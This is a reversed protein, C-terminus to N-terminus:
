GEDYKNHLEQSYGRETEGSSVNDHIMNGAVENIIDSTANTAYRTLPSATGSTSIKEFASAILPASNAGVRGLLYNTGYSLGSFLIGSAFAEQKALMIGEEYSAGSKYGDEIRYGYSDAAVYALQAPFSAGGTILYFAAASGIFDCVYEGMGDKEMYSKVYIYEGFGSDYINEFFDSVYDKEIIEKVRNEAEPNGNTFLPAFLSITTDVLHEGSTLFGEGVKLGGHTVTAFFRLIINDSYSTKNWNEIEDKTTRIKTIIDNVMDISDDFVECTIKELDTNYYKNINRICQLVDHYTNVINKKSDNLRDLTEAVKEKNYNLEAM